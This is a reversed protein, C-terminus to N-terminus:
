RKRRREDGICEGERKGVKREMKEKKGEKKREMYLGLFYKFNYASMHTQIYKKLWISVEMCWNEHGYTEQLLAMSGSILMHGDYAQLM